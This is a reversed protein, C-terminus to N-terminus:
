RRLKRSNLENNLHRLAAGIDADLSVTGLVPILADLRISRGNECEMVPKISIRSHRGPRDSSFRRVESLPVRFTRNWNAVIVKDGRIVVRKLAQRLFVISLLLNVGTAVVVAPEYTQTQWPWALFAGVGAFGAALIAAGIRGQGISVSYNVDQSTM